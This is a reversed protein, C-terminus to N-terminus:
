AAAAHVSGSAVGDAELLADTARGLSLEALLAMHALEDFLSELNEHFQERMAASRERARAVPTDVPRLQPRVGAARRRRVSSAAIRVRCPRAGRRPCVPRGPGSPPRRPPLGASDPGVARHACTGCAPCECRLTRM